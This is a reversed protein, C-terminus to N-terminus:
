VRYDIVSSGGNFSGASWTFGLTSASRDNSDETLSNPANPSSIIIAGSGAQSLASSDKVNTAVVKAFISDGVTLSYPSATLTALPVTCSTSSIITSDSGDCNTTDETYSGDLQRLTVTYSTITSGNKKPATWSIVANAGSNTTTPSSPTDPGIAHLISLITSV